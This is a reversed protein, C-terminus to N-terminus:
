IEGDKEIFFRIFEMGFKSIKLRDKARLKVKTNSNLKKMNKRPNALSEQISIVVNNLNNVNKILLDLDKELADDYQNELLGMRYLNDRVANYQYYDIGYENMVDTFTKINNEATHWFPYSLKLVAIDLLTLKDLVDYFLYSIDYSINQIATLNTFGYVMYKIKESQNTNVAKNIVTEFISDLTKKNEETQKEFNKRIEDIKNKVEIVLTNLNNIQKQTRYSSIANGIGPIISGLMDIGVSAALEISEKTIIDKVHEKAAEKTYEAIVDLVSETLCNKVSSIKDGM